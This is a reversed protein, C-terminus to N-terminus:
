TNQKLYSAFRTSLKSLLTADIFLFLIGPIVPLILGIIGLILCLGIVVVLVAKGIIQKFSLSSSPNKVNSCRM